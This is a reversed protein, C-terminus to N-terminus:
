SPLLRHFIEQAVRSGRQAQWRAPDEEGDVREIVETIDRDHVPDRVPDWLPFQRSYM